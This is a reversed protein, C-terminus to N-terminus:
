NQCINKKLIIKIKKIKEASGPLMLHLQSKQRLNDTTRLNIIPLLLEDYAQLTYM